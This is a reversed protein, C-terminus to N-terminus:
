RLFTEQVFKTSDPLADGVQQWDVAMTKIRSLDFRPSYPDIGPRLPMQASEIKALRAELERSALWDILKRAPEPNPGNRIRMVTNPIVLTGAGEQDPYIMAVPKGKLFAGNADDTDTLCLPLEGDMVMNRAAANGTAVRVGNAKLANLWARTKDPGLTSWLAAVHTATTGFLPNAIAVKGRYKEKTLDLISRPAEAEPMLDTNVLIVRARAAFGTWRDQPDRWAAPVDEATAPRYPELLGMKALMASRVSENNWFVDCEPRDKMQVLRNVLGTTKSAETDGTILVQIGTQREFDKLLPESFILDHSTYVVVQPGTPAPDCGLLLLLPLFRRM